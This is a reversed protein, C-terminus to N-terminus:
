KPSQLERESHFNEFWHRNICELTANNGLCMMYIKLMIQQMLAKKLSMVNNISICYM